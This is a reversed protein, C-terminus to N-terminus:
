GAAGVVQEASRLAAELTRGHPQPLALAIAQARALADLAAASSGGAMHCHAQACYCRVLAPRAECLELAVEADLLLAQAAEFDGQGAM